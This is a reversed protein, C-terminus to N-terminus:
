KLAAAIGFVAAAKFYPAPEGLFARGWPTSAMIGLATNEIAKVLFLKALDKLMSGIAERLSNGSEFFADAIAGAFGQAIAQMVELKAAKESAAVMEENLKQMALAANVAGIELEVLPNSGEILIEDLARLEETVGEFGLAVLLNGGEPLQISDLTEQLRAAEAAAKAFERAQKEAADAAMKAAEPNPLPFMGEFAEGTAAELAALNGGAALFTRALNNIETDLDKVAIKASEFALGAQKDPGGPFMAGVAAGLMGLPGMPGGLAEGARSPLNRNPGAAVAAAATDRQTRAGMLSAITDIANVGKLKASLRDFAGEGKIIASYWEDIAAAANKFWTTSTILDKTLTAVANAATFAVGAFGFAGALKLAASRLSFLKAAAVEATSAMTKVAGRSRAMADDSARMGQVIGRTDVVFDALVIREAV